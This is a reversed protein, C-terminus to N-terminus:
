PKASQDLKDIAGKLTEGTKHAADRLVAGVEAVGGVGLALARGFDGPLLQEVDHHLGFSHLAKVVEPVLLQKPDTVNTYNQDINLKYDRTDSKSGTFDEVALEGLHIHLRRVLYDRPKRRNAAAMFDGANSKGDHQRILVIKETDVDLENIVVRESFMWSFVNVDARLERLEVFDPSPYSPPNRASLGAVLVRGTFPDCKLVAVHFDFGTSERLERQVIAPLFVMWALSALAFLIGLGLCIKTSRRL